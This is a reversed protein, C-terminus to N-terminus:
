VKEKKKIIMQVSSVPINVREAIEELNYGATYMMWVTNDRRKRKLVFTDYKKAMASREEYVGDRSFGV